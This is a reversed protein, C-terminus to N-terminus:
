DNERAAELYAKDFAKDYAARKELTAARNELYAARAAL